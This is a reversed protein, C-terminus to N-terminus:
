KKAAGGGGSYKGKNRTAWGEVPPLAGGGHEAAWAADRGDLLPRLNTPLAGAAAKVADLRPGVTKPLSREFLNPADTAIAPRPRGVAADWYKLKSANSPSALSIRFLSPSSALVAKVGEGGIGWEGLTKVNRKATELPNHFITPHHVLLDVLAPSGKAFGLSELWAVTPRLDNGLGIALVDPSAGAMRRVGEVPIGLEQTYFALKPALTKDVDYTLIQPRALAIRKLTSARLGLSTRLWGVTRGLGAELSANLVRPVAGLVAGLAVGDGAVVEKLLLGVKPKIVGELGHALCDAHDAELAAVVPAPM